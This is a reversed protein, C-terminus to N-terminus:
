TGLERRRLPKYKVRQIALFLFFPGCPLISIIGLINKKFVGNAETIRVSCVAGAANSSVLCHLSERPLVETDQPSVGPKM